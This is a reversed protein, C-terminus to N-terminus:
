NVRWTVHLKESGGMIYDKMNGQIERLPAEIDNPGDEDAGDEFGLPESIHFGQLAQIMNYPNTYTPTPANDTVSNIEVFLTRM